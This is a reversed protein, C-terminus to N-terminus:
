QVQTDLNGLGIDFWKKADASSVLALYHKRLIDPSNGLYDAVVGPDRVEAMLYSCASHRLANHPVRLKAKKWRPGLVEHPNALPCVKASPEGVHPRLWEIANPPIPVHRGIGCKTLEPALRVEATDLCVMGWTLRMIEATRIGCFAGLVVFPILSDPTAALLRTLEEPSLIGPRPQDVPAKKIGDFPNRDARGESVLWRYYGNLTVLTHNRTRPDSIQGLWIRPDPCGANVYRWVRALVTRVHKDSVAGLSDVYNGPNHRTETSVPIPSPVSERLRNWESFLDEVPLGSLREILRLREADRRYGEVSGAERGADLEKLVLEAHGRAHDPNGFTKRFKRGGQRWMVVHEGRPSPYIAVESHKTRLRLTKVGPKTIEKVPNM